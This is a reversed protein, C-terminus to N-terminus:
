SPAPGVLTAVTKAIRRQRTQDSKAAEVAMVLARRNSYSLADFARRVDPRADLAEAVDDPVSVERVGTDLDLDIDVVDGARVRAAARNDASIGLLFVGGMPTVSSRWTHGNITVTVAPRRSSGLATVVDDPVQVGTATKGHLEVTASFRM